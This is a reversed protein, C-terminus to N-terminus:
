WRRGEKLIAVYNRLRDYKDAYGGYDGSEVLQWEEGTWRVDLNTPKSPNFVVECDGGFADDPERVTAVVASIAGITIRDGPKVAPRPAM